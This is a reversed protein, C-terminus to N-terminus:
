RPQNILNLSDHQRDHRISFASLLTEVEKGSPLNILDTGRFWELDYNVFFDSMSLM